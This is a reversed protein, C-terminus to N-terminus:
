NKNLINLREEAIKAFSNQKDLNSVIKWQDAAKNKFIIKVLPDATVEFYREYAYALRM